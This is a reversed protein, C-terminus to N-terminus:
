EGAQRFMRIEGRAQALRANDIVVDSLPAPADYHLNHGGKLTVRRAQPLSDRQMEAHEPRLLNSSEGYVMAIPGSMKRLSRLLATPDAGAFSGFGIGARAGLRADSRWRYGREVAETMRRAMMLAFEMSLSPSGQRLRGAAQEVSPFVPHRPPSALYDLQVSLLDGPDGTRAVAEVPAEILVLSQVERPRAAAFLAALAAGMSHGVLHVPRAFLGTSVLRDLDGLFDLPHYLVGPPTHESMGHGRLDPAVVRYGADALRAAVLHWAAGHELLGHVLMITEGDAPGWECLCSRGGALQVVRESWASSTAPRASEIEYGFQRALERTRESLAHSTKGQRWRDALGTEITRHSMFNPDNLPASEPHLGDHM